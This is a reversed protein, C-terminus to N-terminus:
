FGILHIDKIVSKNIETMGRGIVRLTVSDGADGIMVGRYEKEETIVECRIRPVESPLNVLYDIKGDINLGKFSSDNSYEKTNEETLQEEKEKTQVSLNRGFYSEQMYAKPKQFNPQDIYMLPEIFREGKM